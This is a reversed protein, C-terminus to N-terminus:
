MAPRNQQESTAILVRPPTRMPTSVIRNITIRVDHGTKHQVAQGDPSAAEVSRFRLLFLLVEGARGFQRTLNAMVCGKGTHTTALGGAAPEELGTPRTTTRKAM